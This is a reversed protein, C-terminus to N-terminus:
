FAERRLIPAVVIDIRYYTLLCSVQLKQPAFKVLESFGRCVAAAQIGVVKLAKNSAAGSAITM